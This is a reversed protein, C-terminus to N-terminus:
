ELMIDSQVPRMNEDWLFIRAYSYQLPNKVSFLTANETFTDKEVKALQKDSDYYAVMVDVSEEGYYSPYLKMDVGSDNVKYEVGNKVLTLVAVSKAPMVYSSFKETHM